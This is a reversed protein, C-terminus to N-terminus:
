FYGAGAFAISKYEGVKTKDVAEPFEM